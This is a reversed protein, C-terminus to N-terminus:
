GTLGESCDGLEWHIDDGPTFRQLSIGQIGEHEGNVTYCWWPPEGADLSNGEGNIREVGFSGFGENYSYEVVNGSAESWTVMADHVNIYEPHKAGREDYMPQAAPADLDVWVDDVTTPTSSLGYDITIKAPALGNVEFTMTLSANDNWADLTVTQWGSVLQVPYEWAGDAAIDDGVTDHVFGSYMALRVSGNVFGKALWTGPYGGEPEEVTLEIAPEPLTFPDTPTITEPASDPADTCGAFAVLVALLVASAKM